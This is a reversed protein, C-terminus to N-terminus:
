LKDRETICVWLNDTPLRGKTQEIIACVDYTRLGLAALAEKENDRGKPFIRSSLFAFVEAVTTKETDMNSFPYLAGSRYRIVSVNHNDVCVQSVLADNEMVNFRLM